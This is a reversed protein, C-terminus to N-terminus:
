RRGWYEEQVRRGTLDCFGRVIWERAIDFWEALAIDASPAGRVTLECLFLEKKDRNRTGHKLTVYLRGQREPLSFRLQWGMVDPDPLFDRNKRWNLDPFLESIASFNSWGEGKPIHNIYTLEAQTISAPGIREQECFEQFSAWMTFFRQSTARHRPYRDEDNVKRWNHLFRDKQLQMVWNGSEDILFVRPTPIVDLSMLAAPQVDGDKYREVVPPLPPKEETDPYQNRHKSWFAGIRPTNLGALPEFQLGFVTEIVPPKSFDPLKSTGSPHHPSM